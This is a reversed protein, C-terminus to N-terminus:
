AVTSVPRSVKEKEFQNQWKSMCERILSIYNTLGAIQNDKRYAMLLNLQPQPDLDLPRTVVNPPLILQVYDPLLSFGLASGVANLTAVVNDTDLVANFQVGARNAIENTIDHIASANTRLIMVLPTEALTPVPIRELAALPHGAPLAALINDQSITESAITSDDIPGRLFGINIEGNQLAIIQEWTTMSRLSLQVQPYRTRLLPLIHSLVKVDAGVISGITIHGAAARAAQRTLTVAHQAQQLLIRAERLFVRGPETLEVHHKDRVFLPTGVIDELKRIQM